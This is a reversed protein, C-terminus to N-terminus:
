SQSDAADKVKMGSVVREVDKELDHFWIWDFRGNQLRALIESMDGGAEEHRLFLMRGVEAAQEVQRQARPRRVSDYVELGAEVHSKSRSDDDGAFSNNLEAFVHSLILADELAQAAGAAQYPLSAHASDGLLAVRGLFYTSTHLHHFFGWKIPETKSLLRRFRSDITSDEFDSMMTEHTTKETVASHIKWPHPDAVCLLLNLEEGGSIRYTIACRDHGFYFKAVDILDGMIEYAEAMSIVARYCYSDAYVPAVQSPYQEKLVHERVISKIGDTGALVSAEDVSGDEFNLVVKDSHQQIGTLRKNFKVNENPIFSTMIDLLSKRHASRPVFDPHGWTSNGFWPQGEGLGKELLMGEFFCMRSMAVKIGWVFKRM